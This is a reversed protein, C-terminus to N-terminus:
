LTIKEGLRRGIAEEMMEKLTQGSDPLVFATRAPDWDFKYSKSDASVWIQRTAAQPSVVFKGPTDEFEVALAGSNLDSDMPYQDAASALARSLTELAEDARRRFEQEEM